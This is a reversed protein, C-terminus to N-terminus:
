YTGGLIADEVYSQILSGLDTSSVLNMGTKSATWSLVGDSSVSPTYYGGDSGSSSSSSPFTITKTNIKIVHGNSDRTISDIVTTTQGSDPSVSSTTDDQTSISPHDTLADAVGQELANLLSATITDGSSWTHKTYAM